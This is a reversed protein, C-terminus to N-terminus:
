SKKMEYCVKLASWGNKSWQYPVPPAAPPSNVDWLTGEGLSRHCWQLGNAACWYEMACWNFIVSPCHLGVREGLTSVCGKESVHRKHWSRLAAFTCCSMCQHLPPPVMGLPPLNTGAQVYQCLLLSSHLCPPSTELHFSPIRYPVQLPHSWDHCRLDPWIEVGWGLPTTNKPNAGSGFLGM